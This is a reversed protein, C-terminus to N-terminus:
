HGASVVGKKGVTKKLAFVLPVCAFCVLAMYRFDDV